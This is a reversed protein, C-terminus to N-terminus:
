LKKKIEHLNLIIFSFSGVDVSNLLTIYFYFLGTILWCSICNAVVTNILCNLWKWLLIASYKGTQEFEQWISLYYLMDRFM